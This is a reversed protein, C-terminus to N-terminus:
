FMVFCAICLFTQYFCVHATYMPAFTPASWLGQKGVSILSRYLLVFLFTELTNKLASLTMILCETHVACEKGQFLVTIKYRFVRVM